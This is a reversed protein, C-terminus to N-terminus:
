GRILKAPVSGFKLDTDPTVDVPESGIEQGGVYTKNRSANDSVTVKGGVVHIVAHCSSVDPMNIRIRADASRGVINDGEELDYSKRFLPIELRFGTAKAPTPAQADGIGTPLKERSPCCRLM